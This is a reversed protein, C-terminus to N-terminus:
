FSPGPGDGGVMTGITHTGHGHDDYPSPQNNIIDKWSNTGGRWKGALAPHTPDFGTDMSGVVIGSGDVGFDAWAQDAGGMTIKWGFTPGLVTAGPDFFVPEDWEIQEVAPDDILAEIVAPPA